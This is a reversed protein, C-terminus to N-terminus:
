RSETVYCILEEYFEDTVPCRLAPKFRNKKRSKEICNLNRCIYAGRGNKKGSPDIEPGNVTAVVRLLEQKTKRENCAVCKRLPEHKPM